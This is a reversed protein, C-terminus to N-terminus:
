YEVSIFRPSLARSASHSLQEEFALEDIGDTASGFGGRQSSPFVGAYVRSGSRGYGADAPQFDEGALADFL